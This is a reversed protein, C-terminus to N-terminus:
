HKLSADVELVVKTPIKFGTADSADTVVCYYKNVSFIKSIDFKFSGKNNKVSAGRNELFLPKFFTFLTLGTFITSITVPGKLNSRSM